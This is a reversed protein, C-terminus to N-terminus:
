NSVVYSTETMKQLSGTTFPFKEILSLNMPLPHSYAPHIWKEFQGPPSPFEPRTKQVKSFGTSFRQGLNNLLIKHSKGWDQRTKDTFDRWIKIQSVAFSDPKCSSVPWDNPWPSATSPCWTLLSCKGTFLGLSEQVQRLRFRLGNWRSRGWDLGLVMGGRSRVHVQAMDWMRISVKRFPIM